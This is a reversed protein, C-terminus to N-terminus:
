IPLDLTAKVGDTNEEITLLWGLRECIRQTLDIGLGFSVIENDVGLNADHNEIVIQLHQCRIEISGEQTYQFANRILNSLVILLPIKPLCLTPANDYDRIVNVEEHQILYKQEDIIQTLLEPIIVQSSAPSLENQRGLWLLTETIHQMNHNAREMRLLSNIAVDPMEVRELIEMNARIIAIPTRLEHSAHSLFRKENEILLANRNLANQLCTAVREYENYHLKPRPLELNEVSVKEAWNVLARTKKGVRYRFFWLALLIFILYSGAVNIILEFPKDFLWEVNSEPVLNFDFISIAYVSRGDFLQKHYVVVIFDKDETDPFIDESEFFVFEDPTLTIEKLVDVGNILYAPVSDLKLRLTHFSPVPINQDLEYAKSFAQTEHVLRLKALSDAGNDFFQTLLETYVIATIIGIFLFYSTLNNRVSLKKLRM